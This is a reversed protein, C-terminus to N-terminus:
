RSSSRGCAGPRRPTRRPAGGKTAKVGLLEDTSVELVRAPEILVPGPPFDCENESFANPVSKGLQRESESELETQFTTM